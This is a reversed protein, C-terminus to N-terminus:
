KEPRFKRSWRGSSLCSEATLSCWSRAATSNQTVMTKATSTPSAAHPRPPGEPSADPRNARPRCLGSTSHDSTASSTIMDITESAITM